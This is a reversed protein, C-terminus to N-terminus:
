KNSQIKWRKILVLKGYLHIIYMWSALALDPLSSEILLWDCETHKIIIWVLLVPFNQLVNTTNNVITKLIEMSTSQQVYLFFVFSFLFVLM